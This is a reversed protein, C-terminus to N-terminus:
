EQSTEMRGFWSGKLDFRDHIACDTEFISGVVVFYVTKNYMTIAHAGFFKNILSDPETRISVLEDGSDIWETYSDSSNELTYAFGGRDAVLRVRQQGSGAVQPRGRPFGEGPGTGVVDGRGDLDVARRAVGHNINREYGRGRTVLRRRRM